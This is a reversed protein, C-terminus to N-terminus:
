TNVASIEGDVSHQLRGGICCRSRIRHFALQPELRAITARAIRRAANRHLELHRYDLLLRERLDSRLRRGPIGCRWRATSYWRERRQTLISASTDWGNSSIATARRRVQWRHNWSPM